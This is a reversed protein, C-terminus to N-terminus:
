RVQEKVCQTGYPTREANSQNGASKLESSRKAFTAAKTDEGISTLSKSYEEYVLAVGTPDRKEADYKKYIPLLKEYYPVAQSYKKQDYNLRALELLSMHVPGSNAKDLEYAKNLYMSSKDFFCNVGLARGYEYYLTALKRPNENGLEANVVAQAWQRRASDWDGNNLAAQAAMAHNESSKRNVPAACAGLLLVLVLVSIRKM